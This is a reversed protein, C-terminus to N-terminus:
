RAWRASRLRKVTVEVQEGVELELEHVISAPVCVRMQRLGRKYLQLNAKYRAYGREKNTELVIPMKKPM